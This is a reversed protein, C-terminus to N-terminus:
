IGLETHSKGGREPVIAMQDARFNGGHGRKTEWYSAGGMTVTNGQGRSQRIIPLRRMAEKGQVARGTEAIRSWTRFRAPSPAEISYQASAASKSLVSTGSRQIGRCLAPSPAQFSSYE